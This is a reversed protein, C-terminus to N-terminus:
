KSRSTISTKYQTPTQGEIKKFVQNFSSKSNFGCDYAIGLLTLHSYEPNSLRRKYEDIRWRNVFDYFNMGMQDNLVQSLKHKSVGISEALGALSLKVNTYPREERMFDSLKRVIEDGELQDLASTEYKKPRSRQAFIVPQKLGFFGIIFVNILILAALIQFSAIFPLMGLAAAWIAVYSVLFGILELTVWHFLWNLTIEEEYSFEERIRARHRRLLILSAIPYALSVLALFQAYSKALWPLHPSVHIFGDYVNLLGPHWANLLQMFIVFFMFPIGHPWVQVWTLSPRTLEKVYFLLLPAALFQLLGGVLMLEIRLSVQIFNLYYFVLQIANLFMWLSLVWDLTHKQKKYLLLTIILIAQGVGIFYIANVETFIHAPITGPWWNWM